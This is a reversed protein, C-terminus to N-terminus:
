CLFLRGRRVIIVFSLQYGQGSDGVLASWAAFAVLLAACACYFQHPRARDRHAMALVLALSVVVTPVVLAHSVADANARCSVAPRNAFRFGSTAWATCRPTAFPGCLTTARKCAAHCHSRCASVVARRRVFMLHFLFCNILLFRERHLESLADYARPPSFVHVLPAWM